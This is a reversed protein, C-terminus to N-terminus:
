IRRAGLAGSTCCNFRSLGRQGPPLLHHLRHTHTSRWSPKSLQVPPLPRLLLQVSFRTLASRYPWRFVATLRPTTSTFAETRIMPGSKAVPATEGEGGGGVDRVFLVGQRTSTSTILPSLRAKFAFTVFPCSPGLGLLRIPWPM